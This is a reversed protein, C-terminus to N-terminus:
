GKFGVKSNKLFYNKYIVQHSCVQQGGKKVLSSNLFSALIRLVWLLPTYFFAQQMFIQM